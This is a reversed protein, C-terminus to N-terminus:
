YNILNCSSCLSFAIPLYVYVWKGKASCLHECSCVESRVSNDEVRRHWVGSKCNGVVSLHRKITMNDWSNRSSCSSSRGEKQDSVVRWLNQAPMSINYDIYCSVEQSHPSLPAAVDHRSSLYLDELVMEWILIFLLGMFTNFQRVGCETIFCFTVWKYLNCQKSQFLVSGVVLLQWSCAWLFGICIGAIGPQLVLVSQSLCLHQESPNGIIFLNPKSPVYCFVFSLFFGKRIQTITLYVCVGKPFCDSPLKMSCDKCFLCSDTAILWLVGSEGGCNVLKWLVDKMCSYAM